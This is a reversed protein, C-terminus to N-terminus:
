ERGSKVNQRVEQQLLSWVHGRLEQYRPLAKIDHEYRPRPLDVPVIEQLRGPRSTIVVIRDALVLAEDISHTIFVVTKGTEAIIKELEGQMIERTMADVAGFPEDMLLVRPDVALARALGVRQRMGGSLEHPYSREFGALGVLEIYRQVIARHERDRKGALELGFRVNQEVTRWPMLAYDQFVMARDPGPQRVAQGSFYVAGSTPPVLGAVASLFTTKGCGSPGVIVLFEGEAVDLTLDWLAVLRTRERAKEYEVTLHEARILVGTVERGNCDM